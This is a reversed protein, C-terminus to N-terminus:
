FIQFHPAVIAREEFTGGRWRVWVWFSELLVRERERQLPPLHPTPPLLPVRKKLKLWKSRTETFMERDGM